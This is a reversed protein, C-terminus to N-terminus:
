RGGLPDQPSVGVVRAGTFFEISQTQGEEGLGSLGWASRPTNQGISLLSYGNIKVGGTRMAKAFATAKELDEGYVYGALGLETGNALALAEEPTRYTHVCAVPGFIEERTDDPSCGDILTPPIFYGKLDPLATSQLVQGGLAKLKEIDALVSEYQGRNVMPGMDTADSLSHGLSLTSLIDLVRKILTQKQDEHVIVRGLARCWQGNLNSLGYAIGMAAKELDADQLVLLQNNGGLELQTPVFQDAAARAIARGGNLGGTFSIAKIRSDNVMQAGIHRSGCTLQFVGKPLGVTAIAQAMLVASHPAWESPKIICPAGAALASAIKHSGIATPGNWPSILLSPGWPSRFYDVDVTPGPVKSELLGARISQAAGKFVLPALQAMKLTTRIPAGTTLADARSIAEIYHTKSLEQAIADLVEARERSPTNEWVGAEYADASAQLAQEVQETSCSLQRQLAEDTNANCVFGDREIEPTSFQDAIYNKLEPLTDTMKNM